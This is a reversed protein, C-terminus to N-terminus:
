RKERKFLTIVWMIPFVVWFASGLVFFFMVFVLALVRLIDEGSSGNWYMVLSIGVFLIITLATWTKDLKIVTQM